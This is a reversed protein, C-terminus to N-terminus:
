QVVLWYIIHDSVYKYIYICMCHCIMSDSLEPFEHSKGQTEWCLNPDSQPHMKRTSVVM